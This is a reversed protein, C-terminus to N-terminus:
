PILSSAMENIYEEIATYGSAMITNQDPVNVSLGNSTEWSDPIGDNDTDTPASTVTLGELLNAPIRTGWSGTGNRVEQVNDVLMSDRPFAGAKNLVDEYAIESSSTTIPTNVFDHIVTTRAASSDWNWDIFEFSPHAFPISWPNEISAQIGDGIDDIYNDTLYYSLQPTNTGESEDDFFFPILNDNPGQKFYNGIINFNGKAPNHHIFGHRVNYMVNNIVEAPGSALAPNRNLNHIFLNHHVSISHGAPGNILGYNHSNGDPHGIPDSRSISSWQVTVNNAEYLDFNEDVGGSISIHDFILNTSRSCQVGDYLNGSISSNAPIKHDARVRIFRLIINNPMADYDCELRGHITIGAGPATQGAITVDGVPINVDGEIVGSVEFIIIKAGPQNLAYQFSGTGSTNLNSVKIVQGGRGGTALAGFGEATPFAKVQSSAVDSITLTYSISQTTNGSSDQSEIIYTHDGSSLGTDTYSLGTTNGINIGDRLINYRSILINDTSAAWTLTIDNGSTQHSINGPSTPPQTDNNGSEPMTINVMTSRSSNNAADFADITYNRAGVPVNLDLFTTNTTNGVSVGDRYITYSTVAVNDSAATWTFLLNNNNIQYSINSVGSPSVNDTENNALLTFPLDTSSTTNGALDISEINYTYSGPALNNDMFTLSSTSSILTGDRRINYGSIGVNDTASNWTITISAGSSTLTINTAASPPDIDTENDATVPVTVTYSGSQTTNGAADTAVIIYIHDGAPANTDIFTSATTSGILVGDRLINYTAIGTDDTSEQWTLELYDNQTNSTVDTVAEPPTTDQNDEISTTSSSDCAALLFLSIFSFLPLKLYQKYM